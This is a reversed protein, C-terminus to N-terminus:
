EWPGWQSYYSLNLKDSQCNFLTLYMVSVDYHSLPRRLDGAERNNVWGNIWASILSFMLAGRWQGKHPSNVPSWHIGRAFPWYHPFHKWKMVDDHCMVTVVWGQGRQRHSDTTELGVWGLYMALILVKTCIMALCEWNSPLAICSYHCPAKVFLMLANKAHILM